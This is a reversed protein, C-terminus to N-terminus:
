LPSVLYHLGLGVGRYILIPIPDSLADLTFMCILVLSIEMSAHDPGPNDVVADLATQSCPAMLFQSSNHLLKSSTASATRLCSLTTVSVSKLPCISSPVSSILHHQTPRTNLLSICFSAHYHIKDNFHSHHLPLVAQSDFISYHSEKIDCLIWNVRWKM